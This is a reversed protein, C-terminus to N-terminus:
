KIVAAPNDLKTLLNAFIDLQTDRAIGFADCLAIGAVLLAIAEIDIRGDPDVAQVLESAIEVCREGDAGELKKMRATRAEEIDTM